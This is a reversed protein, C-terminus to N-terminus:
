GKEQTRLKGEENTSSKMRSRRTEKANKTRGREEAPHGIIKRNCFFTLSIGSSVCLCLHIRSVM